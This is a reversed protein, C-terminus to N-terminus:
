SSEAVGTYIPTADKFDGKCYTLILDFCEEQHDQFPKSENNKECFYSM